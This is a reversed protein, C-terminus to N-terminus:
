CSVGFGRGAYVADDDSVVGVPGVAGDDVVKDVTAFDRTCVVCVYLPRVFELSQILRVDFVGDGFMAGYEEIGVIRRYRVVIGVVQGHGSGSVGVVVEVVM